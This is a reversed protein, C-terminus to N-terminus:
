GRYWHTTRFITVLQPHDLVKGSTAELKKTFTSTSFNFAFPGLLSLRCPCNLSSFNASNKYLSCLNLVKHKDKLHYDYILALRDYWYGRSSTCYTKQALLIEYVTVAESYLKQKQLLDVAYSIARIIQSMCTYRVLQSPLTLDYRCCTFIRWEYKVDM